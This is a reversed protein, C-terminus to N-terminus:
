FHDSSLEIGQSALPVGTVSPPLSRPSDLYRRASSSRRREAHRDPHAPQPDGAAEEYDGRRHGYFPGFASSGEAESAEPEQSSEQPFGQGRVRRLSQVVM